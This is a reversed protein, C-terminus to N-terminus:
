TPSVCRGAESQLSATRFCANRVRQQPDPCATQGAARIFAGPPTPPLHIDLTRVALKFARGPLLCPFYTM